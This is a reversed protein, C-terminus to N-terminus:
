GDTINESVKQIYNYYNKRNFVMKVKIINTMLYVIIFEFNNVITFKM